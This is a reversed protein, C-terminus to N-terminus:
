RSLRAAYGKLAHRYVFKVRAGWAHAHEAAVAHPDPATDKLVVIYHGPITKDGANGASAAVLAVVVGLSLLLRFGRPQAIRRRDPRSVSCAITTFMNDELASVRVSWLWGARRVTTGKWM